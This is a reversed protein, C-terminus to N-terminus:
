WVFSTGLSGAFSQGASPQQSTPTAGPLRLGGLPLPKIGFPLTSAAAGGATPTGTPVADWRPREAGVATVENTAECWYYTDKTGEQEVLAWANPKPAGVHTTEDTLQCWYYTGGSAKDLVSDWVQEEEEVVLGGAERTAEGVEGM